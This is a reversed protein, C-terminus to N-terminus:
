CPWMGAAEKKNAKGPKNGLALEMATQAAAARKKDDEATKLEEYSYGKAHTALRQGLSPARHTLVSIRWRKSISLLHRVVSQEDEILPWQVGGVVEGSAFALLTPAFDVADVGSAPAMKWLEVQFTTKNRIDSTTPVLYFLPSGPDVGSAPHFMLLVTPDCGKAPGPQTQQAHALVLRIYELLSEATNNLKGIGTDFLEKCCGSGGCTREQTVTAPFGALPATYFGRNDTFRKVCAAFKHKDQHQEVHLPLIPFPGDLAAFPLPAGQATAEPEATDADNTALLRLPAATSTAENRLQAARAQYEEQSAASERKWKTMAAANVAALQEHNNLGVLSGDAKMQAHVGAAYLHM